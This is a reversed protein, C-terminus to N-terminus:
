LENIDDSDTLYGAEVWGRNNTYVRHNETLMMMDGNELEIRIWPTKGNKKCAFNVDTLLSQQLEVDYALVSFKEGRNHRDIVEEIPLEGKDTQIITDPHMCGDWKVSIKTTSGSGESLMNRMSEIYDLAEHAGAFGKNFVLDELHEIHQNKASEAIMWKPSEEKIEFLKM